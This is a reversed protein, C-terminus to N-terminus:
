PQSRASSLIPREALPVYSERRTVIAQMILHSMQAWTQDWSMDALFDDVRMLWNSKDNTALIEEAARVLEESTDAIRVLGLAGYPRVVDRISTSIVPKGAALYEPTKTPSIYRTSENRAFILLAIEWGALYAPLDDYKKSGLYHINSRKPLSDPGIKAVPGIMVFQWNPRAEAARGLLEVDFREDIVGFFGL